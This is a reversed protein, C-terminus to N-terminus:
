KKGKRGEDLETHGALGYKKSIPDKFLINRIPWLTLVMYFGFVVFVGILGLYNVAWALDLGMVGEYILQSATIIMYFSLIDVALIPKKTVATYSYFFAPMLVIVSLLALFSGLFFAPRAGSFLGEVAMVLFTPTLAIKIHEWISENVASFLAVLKNHRSIDYAFHSLTGILSILIIRLVM